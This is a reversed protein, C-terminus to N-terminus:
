SRHLHWGGQAGLAIAVVVDVGTDVVTFDPEQDVGAGADHDQARGVGPRNPMSRALTSNERRVRVAPPITRPAGIMM